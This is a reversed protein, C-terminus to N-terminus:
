FRNPFINVALFGFLGTGLVIILDFAISFLRCKKRKSNLIMVVSLLLNVVLCSRWNGLVLNFIVFSSTKSKLKITFPFIASAVKGANSKWHGPWKEEYRNLLNYNRDLAYAVVHDKGILAVTKYLINATIRMSHVDPVYDEIPLKVLEYTDTKLIYVLQDTTILYAYFERSDEDVCMIHRLNIEEPLMLNRCYPAGKEMKLHYLQGTSDTIFYGEDSKKRKTMLGSILRAPFVFGQKKMALTFIRSKNEDAKNSDAHIFEIGDEGIRFFDEPVELMVRDSESEFLPYLNISPMNIDRPRILNTFSERRLDHVNTEIGAVSDPLTGNAALQRFHMFPLAAEYENRSYFGGKTDRRITKGDERKLILFDGKIESYVIFPEKIKKEFVMWFFKPIFVAMGLIAIFIISYRGAKEIM